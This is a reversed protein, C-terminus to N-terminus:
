NNIKIPKTDISNNNGDYILQRKSESLSLTYIEDKIQIYSKSMNKYWKQNPSTLIAGKKLLSLLQEFSVPNKLGKIKVIVDKKTIAGYMKPGLYVAEIFIHELKMQGLDPGVFTDPLPKDLDISDTDSYYLTYGDLNKLYSMHVRAGSTIASAIAVSCQTQSNFDDVNIPTQNILEKGNELPLVDNIKNNKSLEITQEPSVIANVDQYPNMGFRGYLSNLMLKSLAYASSNKDSNKKMEYYFDVYEKFIVKSTFYVGRHYKFTYSLELARLIEISTYVGTWKGVPAITKNDIKTLLLPAKVTDPCNVTVEIFSFKSKDNLINIINEENGEFSTPLGIPMAQSAMIYPYLSNVDYRYINKGYPKYVDVAGGRYGLKIFKYVEGILNPIFVDSSLFKTKFNKFALSPLTLAENGNTRCDKYNESFLKILVLYLSKCDQVCYKITEDKLSWDNNFQKCYDHYESVSINSFKNFQPVPGVYNKYILDECVFDYPFITKSEVNFSKCLKKLSSPLMLLSDRFYIKYKDQAFSFKLDVFKGDNIITNLNDSLTSLVNFLFVADFNSFNHLYIRYNNYKRQM